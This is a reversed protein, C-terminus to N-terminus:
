PDRAHDRLAGAADREVADERSARRARVQRGVQEVPPAAAALDPLRHAAAFSM